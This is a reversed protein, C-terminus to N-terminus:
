RLLETHLDNDMRVHVLGSRLASFDVACCGECDRFCPRSNSSCLRFRSVLILCCHPCGVVVHVRALKALSTFARFYELSADAAFSFACTTISVLSPGEVMRLLACVRM